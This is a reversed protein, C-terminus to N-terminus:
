PMDKSTLPHGFRRVTLLTLENRRRALLGSAPQPPTYVRDFDTLIGLDLAKQRLTKPQLPVNALSIELLETGDFEFGTVAHTLKDRIPRPESTPRFGVSAARIMDQAVLARLSDIFPSTGEAALKIRAMLQRAHIWVREARGVPLESARHMWLVVPNKRYNELEWGRTHIISGNRDVGQDSAIMTLEDSSEARTEATISKLVADV